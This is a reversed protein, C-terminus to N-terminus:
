GDKGALVDVASVLPHKEANDCFDLVLLDSKGPAIRWGRGIAHEYLPRSLTPRVMAVCSVFALDVGRGLVAINVLCQFQRARFATMADRRAAKPMAGWVARASGPAYSNFMTTLTRAHEVTAAFVITPRDGALCRTSAVVERPHEKSSLLRGLAGPDLDGSKEGVGSLDLVRVSHQNIRVLFGAEILERHTAVEYSEGFVGGLAVGDHRVPTATVGLIRASWFRERIKRWTKTVAHDAEDFILISFMTPPFDNLRRVFSQVTACVVDPPNKRDVRELGIEVGVSLRTQTRFADAAQRVLDTSDQALVLIRGGHQRQWECATRVFILSKGIGTPGHNLLARVGTNFTAINWKIARAQYDRDRHRLRM